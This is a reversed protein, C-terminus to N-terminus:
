CQINAVAAFLSPCRWVGTLRVGWGGLRGPTRDPCMPSSRPGFPDDVPQLTTEKPDISGLDDRMFSVLRIGDDVEKLGVQQGALVASINIRKGHAFAAAAAIGELVGGM